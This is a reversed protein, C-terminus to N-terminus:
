ATGAAQEVAAIIKYYGTCRCLNGSFATDIEARGPNPEEELLKAGSMLFGPICYGCQVSGRDVFAQQIPHLRGGAGLAEITTVEARHARGVPVLCAMVAMGDLFVTCAGCEGEACGEKTGTLTGGERGDARDRLWDLLTRSAAGPASITRGNVRATITDEGSLEFAFGPGTPYLGKTAGALTVTPEFPRGQSGPALSRLARRALVRLQESRYVGTARIDDIPSAAGAILGAVATIVEDTLAKGALLEEAEGARIITPAVSGLAIRAAAVVPGDFRLVLALNVVSIAQARRLGLKVFIGREGAVMRRVRLATVLEDAALTTKRVGTYLDALDIRRTGRPSAVDLACGLARLPTITDNAPSATIVNGAVTARNRLQPSAVDWAAQALPLADAIVTPDTAVRNHTVTAGIILADGEINIQDLGAVRSLDIITDVGPRTGRALELLLDTGGAILRARDGLRALTSVAEAVTAPAVYGTLVLGHEQV